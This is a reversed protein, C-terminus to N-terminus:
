IDVADNTCRSTLRDINGRSMQLDPLSIVENFWYEQTTDM